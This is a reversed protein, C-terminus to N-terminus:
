IKKVVKEKLQKSHSTSLACVSLADDYSEFSIVPGLIKRRCTKRELRPFPM